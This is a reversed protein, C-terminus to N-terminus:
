TKFINVFIRLQKESIINAGDGVPCEPVSSFIWTYRFPNLLRTPRSRLPPSSWLLFARSMRALIFLDLDVQLPKPPPNAQEEISPLEM